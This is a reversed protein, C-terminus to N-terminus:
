NRSLTPSVIDRDPVVFSKRLKSPRTFPKSSRLPSPEGSLGVARRHDTKGGLLRIVPRFSAEAWAPSEAPHAPQGEPRGRPGRIRATGEPVLGGFTGPPAGASTGLPSRPAQYRPHPIPERRPTAVGEPTPAKRGRVFARGPANTRRFTLATGGQKRTGLGAPKLPALLTWEPVCRRDYLGREQRRM